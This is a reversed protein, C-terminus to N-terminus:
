VPSRSSGGTPFCAASSASVSCGNRAGPSSSGRGSLSSCVLAWPGFGLFALVVGSVAAAVCAVLNIRFRKDFELKRAMEAGQVSNVSNLIISLGSVRALPCLVPTEYFRAIWPASLFFAAYVLLSVATSMYFVSNFELDGANKRQVLANGFGCSALSGAITFFIGLLAVTGYDTPTLLRALVLGVVFTVAQTSFKELTAWVAGKAVKNKLSDAM